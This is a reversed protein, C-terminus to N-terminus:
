FMQNWTCFCFLYNLGYGLKGHCWSWLENFEIKHVFFVFFCFILSFFILSVFFHPFRFILSIKTNRWKKGGGGESVKLIPFLQWQWKRYIHVTSTISSSMSNQLCKRVSTSVINVKVMRWQGHACSFTRIQMKVASLSQCLLPLWTRQCSQRKKSINVSWVIRMTAVFCFKYFNFDILNIPSFAKQPFKSRRRWIAPHWHLM